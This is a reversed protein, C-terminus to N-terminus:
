GIHEISLLNTCTCVSEILKKERVCVHVCPSGELITPRINESFSIPYKVPMNVFYALRHYRYVCLIRGMRTETSYSGRLSVQHLSSGPWTNEARARWEGSFAVELLASTFFLRTYISWFALAVMRLPSESQCGWGGNRKALNSNSELACAYSTYLM